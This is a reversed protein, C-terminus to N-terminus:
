VLKKMANCILVNMWEGPTNYVCVYHYNSHKALITFNPYPNSIINTYTSATKVGDRSTGDLSRGTPEGGVGCGAELVKAWAGVEGAVHIEAQLCFM